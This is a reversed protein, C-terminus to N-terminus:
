ANELEIIFDEIEAIKGKLEGMRYGGWYTFNSEQGKHEAELSKLSAKLRNLRRNLNNIYDQDM